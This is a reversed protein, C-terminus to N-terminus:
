QGAGGPNSNLLLPSLVGLSIVFFLVAPMCLTWLNIGAFVLMCPVIVLFACIIMFLRQLFKETRKQRLEFCKKDMEDDLSNLLQDLNHDM